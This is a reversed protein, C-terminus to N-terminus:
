LGARYFDPSENHEGMRYGVTPSGNDQRKRDRLNVFNLHRFSQHEGPLRMLAM